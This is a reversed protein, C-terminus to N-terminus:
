TLILLGECRGKMRVEEVTLYGLRGLCQQNMWVNCMAWKWTNEEDELCDNHYDTEPELILM